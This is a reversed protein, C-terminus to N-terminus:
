ERFAIPIGLTFRRLVDRPRVPASRYLMPHARACLDNLFITVDDDPFDRRATALDSPATRYLTGFREMDASALDRLRGRRSRRLMAELEGWRDRRAATFAAVTM